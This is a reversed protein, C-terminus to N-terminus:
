LPAERDDRVNAHFATAPNTHSVFRMPVSPSTTHAQYGSASIERCHKANRPCRLCCLGTEPALV